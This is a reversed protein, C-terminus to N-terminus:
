EAKLIWSDPRKVERCISKLPLKTQRSAERLSHYKKGNIVVPQPPYRKLPTNLIKNTIEEGFYYLLIDEDIHGFLDPRQNAFKKMAKITIANHTRDLKIRELGKKAWVNIQNSFKFGFEKAWQQASMYDLETKSYLGLRNIKTQVALRTRNQNFKQNLKEVLLAIPFKGAYQYLFDIEKETWNIGAM